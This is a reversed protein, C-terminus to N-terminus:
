SSESAIVRLVYTVKVNLYNKKNYYARFVENNNIFPIGVSSKAVSKLREASLSIRKGQGKFDFCKRIYANAIAEAYSFTKLINM